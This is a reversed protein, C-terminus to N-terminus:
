RGWNSEKELERGAKWALFMSYINGTYELDWEPNHKYLWVMFDSDAEFEDRWSPKNDDLFQEKSLQKGFSETADKPKGTSAAV